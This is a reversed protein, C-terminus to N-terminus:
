EQQNNLTNAAQTFSNTLGNRFATIITAVAVTILGILLAYEAMTAGDENSLFRSLSKM